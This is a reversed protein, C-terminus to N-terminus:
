DRIDMNKKGEKNIEEENITRDYLAQIKRSFFFFFHMHLREIVISRILESESTRAYSIGM